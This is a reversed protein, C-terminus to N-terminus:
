ARRSRSEVQRGCWQSLISSLWASQDRVGLTAVTVSWPPRTRLRLEWKDGKKGIIRHEEVAEIETRGARQTKTGFASRNEVLLADSDFRLELRRTSDWASYAGALGLGLVGAAVRVLLAPFDTLMPGALLIPGGAVTAIVLAQLVIRWPPTARRIVLTPMGGPVPTWRFSESPVEPLGEAEPDTPLPNM